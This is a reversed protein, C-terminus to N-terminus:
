PHTHTSKCKPPRSKLILITTTLGRVDSAIRPTSKRWSCCATMSRPRLLRQRLSLPHSRRSSPGGGAEDHVRKCCTRVTSVTSTGGRQTMSTEAYRSLSTSPTHITSSIGPPEWSATALATTCGVDADIGTCMKFMDSSGVVSYTSPKQGGFLPPFCNPLTLLLAHLPPGRIRPGCQM